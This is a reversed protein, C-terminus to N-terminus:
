ASLVKSREIPLGTVELRIRHFSLNGFPDPSGFLVLIPLSVLFSRSSIASSLLHSMFESLMSDIILAIAPVAFFM